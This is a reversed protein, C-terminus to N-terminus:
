KLGIYIDIQGNQPDQARQDYLEFDSRYARKLKGQGELAFIKQWAEPVVKAFPGRDSTIVAYRGSQIHMATLGATPATGDKVKAGILFSYEGNHDSAYSSYVAYFIEDLRNPIRQPIGDSFFKQWQRGIIGDASAEKANTTRAEIGIVTFAPIKTVHMDPQKEDNTAPRQDNAGDDNTTRRVRYALVNSAFIATASLLVALLIAPTSRIAYSWCRVVM